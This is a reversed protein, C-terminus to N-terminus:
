AGARGLNLALLRELMETDSLEAPWAYAAFVAADLVAHANALWTPRQNYLNTLTRKALEAPDLGPPNLWGDRLEVLRRAAEGVRERQEPTPDPFPFTEFCTTPTYRGVGIMQSGLADAWAIHVRSHLVGLFYDDDRAFVILQHDPLVDQSLWAFLRHKSVTPTAVYRMLGALASTMEPRRNHHIWWRDRCCAQKVTMRYPRVVSEVYEFPAEYLAAEREALELGFDIIWVDRSRRVVDLGNAFPRVVESNTRGDPNSSHLLRQATEAPVDFPGVKIDGMFAVGLNEPLRRAKTLDIGSTLDANVSAM